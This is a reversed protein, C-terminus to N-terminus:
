FKKIRIKKGLLCSKLVAQFKFDTIHSIETRKQWAPIETQRNM